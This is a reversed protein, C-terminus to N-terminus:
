ASMRLTTAPIFQFAVHQVDRPPPRTCPARLTSRSSLPERDDRGAGGRVGAFRRALEGREARAPMQQELERALDESAACLRQIANALEQAPLAGIEEGDIRVGVSDGDARLEVKNGDHGNWIETWEASAPLGWEDARLDSCCAPQSVLEGELWVGVGGDMPAAHEDLDFDEAEVDQRELEIALLRDAVTHRVDRARVFWRGVVLDKLGAHEFCREAWAEYAPDGGVSGRPSPITSVTWPTVAVLLDLEITSM